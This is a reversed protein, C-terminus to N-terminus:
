KVWSDPCLKFGPYKDYQLLRLPHIGTGAVLYFNMHLNPAGWGEVVSGSCEDNVPQIQKINENLPFLQTHKFNYGGVALTLPFLIAM